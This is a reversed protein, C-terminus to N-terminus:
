RLLVVSGAQQEEQQREEEEELCGLMGCCWSLWWWAPARVGWAGVAEALMLLQAAGCGGAAEEEGCAEEAAGGAVVRLARAGPTGPAVLARATALLAVMVWQRGPRVGLRALSWAFCAADGFPVGGEGDGGEAAGALDRPAPLLAPLFERHLPWGGRAAAWALLARTRWGLGAAAARGSGEQQQQQEREELLLQYAVAQLREVWRAHPRLRLAGLACLVGAAAAPQRLLERMRRHCALLLAGQLEQDVRLPLQQPPQPSLPPSPPVEAGSFAGLLRLATWAAALQSPLACSAHRAMQRQLAQAAAGLEAGWRTPVTTAPPAARAAAPLREHSSAAPSAPTAGAPPRQPRALLAPLPAAPEAGGSGVVSDGGSQAEGGVAAADLSCAAAPPPPPSSPTPTTPEPTFAATAQRGSSEVSPMPQQLACLRAVLLLATSVDRASGESVPARAALEAVLRVHRLTLAELLEPSLSSSFASSTDHWHRHLRHMSALAQLAVVADRLPLRPPGPAPSTAHLAHLRGLCPQLLAAAADWAARGARRCEEEAEREEEEEAAAQQSLPQSASTPASTSLLEACRVASWLVSAAGRADAAAAWGPAAAAAVRRLWRAAAAAVRARAGAGGGGRARRPWRGPAAAARQRM